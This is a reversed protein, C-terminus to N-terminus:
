KNPSKIGLLIEELIKKNEALKKRCSEEQSTLAALALFLNAQLQV